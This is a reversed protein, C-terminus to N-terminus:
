PVTLTVQAPPSTGAANSATLQLYYTGSPVGSFSTATGVLPVAVIPAGGPTLSAMLTYHTPPEGAGASWSLAVTSGTVVPAHFTPAGPATAGAVTVAVENSTASTGSANQALVRVYYTGPPVGPVSVGPTPGLAMTVYPVSFGPTLGAVLVYNTLPGGGAPPNWTFSVTTGTVSATLNSPPGPAPAAQPVTVTVSTSEPGTGAANAAVVSLVFTGNPAAVSFSTAIGMPLTAVVAGGSTLRAVLTYNTPADGSTPASWSLGVNSGTVTAQLNVPASPPGTPLPTGLSYVFAAGTGNRTNYSGLVATEGDFAARYGADHNPTPPPQTLRDVQVWSTGSREFVYAAGQSYTSAPPRFLAGVIARNDRIGLSYGFASAEPSTLKAQEIVGPGTFVYVARTAGVLITDGDLAVDIGFQSNITADSGMVRQPSSSWSAGNRRFVYAAGQLTNSGNDEYPSGVMATDGHVAVAWGFGFEVGATLKDQQIWSGGARVFVYAADAGPAGVIATSGDLAVDEGFRFNNERDLPALIVPGSWTTGSREFVYAAGGGEGNIDATPAGVLITNGSLAVVGFADNSDEGAPPVLTAQPVWSGNSRVFVYVSRPNGPASIAATDGDVAVHYGFYDGPVGNPATLTTELLLQETTLPLQEASTDARLPDPLALAALGLCAWVFWTLCSPRPRYCPAATAFLM